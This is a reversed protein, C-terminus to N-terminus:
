STGTTLIQTPWLCFADEVSCMLLKSSNKKQEVDAVMDHFNAYSKFFEDYM